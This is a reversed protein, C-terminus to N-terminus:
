CSSGHGAAPRSMRRSSTRQRAPQTSREKGGCPSASHKWPWHTCSPTRTRAPASSCPVFWHRRTRTTGPWRRRGPAPLLIEEPRSGALQDADPVQDWLDLAHRYHVHATAPAQAQEAARAATLSAVLAEAARGAARWHLALEAAAAASNAPAVSLNPREALATAVREHLEQRVGPLLQGYVAEQVLAHRFTYGDAAVILLRHAVAEQVTDDLDGPALGAAWTLLRHGAWRGVVAAAYLVHQASPSLRSIRDVILEQVTAPLDAAQGAGALEEVFFPNGEAREAVRRVVDPSPPGGLMGTLLEVTQRRDLATLRVREVRGARSLEAWAASLRGSRAPEDSRRTGVLLLPVDRLGQALFLLLDGTAEDAWHLDEVVLVVPGATALGALRDAVRQFFRTRQSPDPLPVGGQRPLEQLTQTELASLVPLLPLYPVVDLLPLCAAELLQGGRERVTELFRDVLRTKGIGAEGEVLLTRQGGAAVEEWAAVLVALEGERGVMTPCRVRHGVGGTDLVIPRLGM